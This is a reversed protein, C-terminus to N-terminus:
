YINTKKNQQAMEHEELERLMEPTIEINKIFEEYTTTPIENHIEIKQGTLKKVKAVLKHAPLKEMREYQRRQRRNM